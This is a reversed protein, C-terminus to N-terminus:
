KVEDPTMRRVPKGTEDLFEISAAGEPTVKLLLRPKGKADQLAVLSVGNDKGAVLRSFGGAGSERLRKMEADKEPGDPMKALRHGTEIDEQISHDPRDFVRLAASRRGNADSQSFTIVQDQEYQDFSLHGSSHYNGDKDKRGGFTLGGNETGEENFFLMGATRRGPHPQDKGRIIIGPFHSTNSLVFRLTGDDERVNIRKVDIEDFSTKTPASVAQSIGSAALVTSVVASYALLLKNTTGAM